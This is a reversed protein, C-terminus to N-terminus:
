PRLAWKGSGLLMIALGGLLYFGQLELAWGGHKGLMLLQSSHALMIAFLMNIVILLGGIRTYIGVIIMIPAVIEGVFVGYAIFEPLGASSLSNGIFKLSGPNNFKAVGHFLMLVGVSLRLTLKGLADNHFLTTM